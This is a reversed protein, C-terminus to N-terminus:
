LRSWTGEYLAVRRACAVDSQETLTFDDGHAAWRYTGTTGRCSPTQAVVLRGGPTGAFGTRFYIGALDPRYVDVAGNARIVLRWIGLPLTDTGKGIYDSETVTRSWSGVLQKPMPKNPVGEPASAGPSAHALAAACAVAGATAAVRLSRKM